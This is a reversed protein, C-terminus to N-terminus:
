LNRITLPYMPVITLRIITNIGTIFISFHSFQNHSLNPHAPEVTLFKVMDKKIKQM